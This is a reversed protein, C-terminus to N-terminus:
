AGKLGMHKALYDGGPTGCRLFPCPIQGIEELAQEHDGCRIRSAAGCHLCNFGGQGNSVLSSHAYHKTTGRRYYKM